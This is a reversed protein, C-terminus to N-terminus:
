IRVSSCSYYQIVFYVHTIRYCAYYVCLVSLSTIVYYPTDSRQPVMARQQDPLALHYQKIIHKTTTTTTTTTCYAQRMIYVVSNIVGNVLLIYCM